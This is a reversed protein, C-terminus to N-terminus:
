NLLSVHHILRTRPAAGGCDFRLVARSKLGCITCYRKVERGRRFFTSDFHRPIQVVKRILVCAYHRLRSKPAFFIRAPANEAGFFRCFITDYEGLRRRQNRRIEPTTTIQAFCFTSTAFFCGFVQLVGSNFGLARVLVSSIGLM